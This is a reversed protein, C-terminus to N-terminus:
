KFLDLLEKILGDPVSPNIQRLHKPRVKDLMPELGRLKKIFDLDYSLLEWTLCYARYYNNHKDKYLELTNPLDIYEANHFQFVTAVGENLVTTPFHIGTSHERSPQLIHCVEHSLQFRRSIPDTIARESIRIFIDSNNSDYCVSPVGPGSPRTEVRVFNWGVLRPGFYSEALNLLSLAETYCDTNVTSLDM